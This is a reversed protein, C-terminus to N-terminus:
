APIFEGFVHGSPNPLNTVIKLKAGKPIPLTFSQTATSRVNPVNQDAGSASCILKGNLYGRAEVYRQTPSAAVRIIAFGAILGASATSTALGELEFEYEEM